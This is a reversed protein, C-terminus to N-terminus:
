QWRIPIPSYLVSSPVEIGNATREVRKHEHCLDRWPLAFDARWSALKGVTGCRTGGLRRCCEAPGRWSGGRIALTSGGIVGAPNTVSGGPYTGLFDLCWEAVNGHMDFLGWSNPQKGGVPQPAGDSNASYWEFSGLMTLTADDGFSFRTRTGARCAYEWEAETPLRCVYGAPLRGGAQERATLATCFRAADLWSANAFALNADTAQRPYPRLCGCMTRSNAILHLDRARRHVSDATGQGHRRRRLRRALGTQFGAIRGRALSERLRARSAQASHENILIRLLAFPPEGGPM